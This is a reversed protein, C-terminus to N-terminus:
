ALNSVWCHTCCVPNVDYIDATHGVRSATYMACDLLWRISEVDDATLLSQNPWEMRFERILLM